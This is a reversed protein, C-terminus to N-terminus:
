GTGAAVFIGTFVSAVLDLERTRQERSALMLSPTMHTM